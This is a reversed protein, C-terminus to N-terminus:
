TQGVSNRATLQYMGADHENVNNITLSPDDTSMGSYKGGSGQIYLKEENKTWYVDQLAPSKDYLFVDCNLRVSCDKTTCIANTINPRNGTVELFHTDSTYEGIKNRVVIRYFQQDDFTTKPLCLVPSSPDENSGHYKLENIDIRYFINGDCSKQWEIQEPSPCSSILCSFRTESGHVVATNTSIKANPEDLTVVRQVSGVANSVNCSYEGRDEKTPCTIKLFSDDLSGGCYRHNTLDLPTKNKTWKIDNIRPSNELVTHSYHICIEEKTTSVKLNDLQPLEGQTQLFGINSFIKHDINKSIVAQYEGEDEKCVSHINLQRGTSGKYKECSLDIHKRAPGDVKEWSVSLFASEELRIDAKFQATDGCTVEVNREISIARFLNVYSTYEEYKIMRGSINTLKLGYDTTCGNATTFIQIRHILSKGENWLDTFESDPIKASEAHAFHKNRFLRIREIDDGITLDTTKPEKGWDKSPKLTPCLNRILRYLLTVDFKSYDPVRLSSFCCLDRQESNLKDKGGKLSQSLHIEKSLDTPKIHIDLIDILCQKLIDVCVISIQAFNLQKPSLNTSTM